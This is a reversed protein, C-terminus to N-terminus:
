QKTLKATHKSDNDHQFIVEDISFEHHRITNMLDEHLIQRYLEADMTGDIKCYGGVGRSTFCGWIMVSGGGFKVTPKVHFQNLPENPYKWYYQKGDSGFIKFKSEDSWIVRSWDEITWNEYKKAFELRRKQHEKSLYPKKRKVRSVLGNNRLIRRITPASININEKEELVKQAEVASSCRRSTILNTIRRQTLKNITPPRGPKPKNELSHNELWRKKIRSVTSPDINQSKAVARITCGKQLSLLVQARKEQTTHRRRVSAKHYLLQSM